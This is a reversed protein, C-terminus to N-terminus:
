PKKTAPNANAKPLKQVVAQVLKQVADMVAKGLPTNQAQDSGFDLNGIQSQVDGRLKSESKKGTLRETLLVEGTSVNILEGQLVVEAKASSLGGGIGIQGLLGGSSASSQSVDVDAQLITGMLVLDMGEKKGLAVAQDRDLPGSEEAPRALVKPLLRKDRVMEARLWKVVGEAASASEGETADEFPLLGIKVPAPASKPDEAAPWAPGRTALTVIVLAIAWQGSSFRIEGELLSLRKPPEVTLKRAPM